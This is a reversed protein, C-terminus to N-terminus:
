NSLEIHDPQGLEKWLKVNRNMAAKTKGTEMMEKLRMNFLKTLGRCKSKKSFANHIYGDNITKDLAVFKDTLGNLTIYAMGPYLGHIYYENRNHALLKFNSAVSNSATVTLKEKLFHDFDGGYRDGLNKGGQKGILDEWKEFYFEHGAPVWVVFPNIYFPSDNFHLYSRRESTNKLAVIMDINGREAERLVRKWPGVYPTNIKINEDKLIERAIDISAGIIQDGHKWQYPPYNPHGSITIEECSAYAVNGLFTSALFLSGIIISSKQLFQRILPRKM